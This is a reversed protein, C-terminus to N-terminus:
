EENNIITFASKVKELLLTLSTTAVYNQYNTAVTLPNFADVWDAMDPRTSFYEFGNEDCIQLSFAVNCSPATVCNCSSSGEFFVQVYLPDCPKGPQLLGIEWMCGNDYTHMVVDGPVVYGNNKFAMRYEKLLRCVEYFYMEQIIKVTDACNKSRYERHWRQIIEDYFHNTLLERVGPIDIISTGQEQVIAVLIPKIDAGTIVNLGTQTMSIVTLIEDEVM